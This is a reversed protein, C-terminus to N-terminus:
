AEGTIVEAYVARELPSGVFSPLTRPKPYEENQPARPLSIDKTSSGSHGAKAKAHAPKEPTRTQSLLPKRHRTLCKERVCTEAIHIKIWTLIWPDM